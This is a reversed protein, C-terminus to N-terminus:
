PKSGELERAREYAKKAGAADNLKKSRLDGLARATAADPRVALEKALWREAAAYDKREFALRSLEHLAVADLPDLGVAKEFAAGAETKSGKAALAGGLNKWTVASKPYLALARRHVGIADDLKGAGEFCAALTMLAPMNQPNRALLRTLPAIGDAPKGAALANRGAELDAIWVIGDKPDIAEGEPSAASGGVYGLSAIRQAHEALSPDMADPVPADGEVRTSLARLLDNAENRRALRVNKAEAKDKSLDYLESRPADILKLPGRVLARLPAWGYSFLPFFSEMEVDRAPPAGGGRLTKALSRGDAGALPAIGALDALTPAIDVLGATERVVRGAPIGPGTVVLPVRQTAQYLFIGHTDEGHEGLSEGHDGALTILVSRDVARAAAVLRGVQADMFAIEGDYTPTYPAHPDFFHVWVFFPAKSKSLFAIAADATKDGRREPEEGRAATALTDDYVDFGRELGLSGDLVAASVFAGTRYGANRFSEALVPVDKKLRFLANDRVGHHRPLRGTFITAHSPFTLPAPSLAQDFRAGAAALADIAPTSAQKAGYCGLHDARTTDLTVVLVSAAALLIM